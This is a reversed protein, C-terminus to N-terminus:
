TAGCTELTTESMVVVRARSEGIGRRRDLADGRQGAAPALEPDLAVVQRVLDVASVLHALELLQERVRALAPRPPSTVTPAAPLWWTSAVVYKPSPAPELHLGHEHRLRAGLVDDLHQPRVQREPQAGERHARPAAAGKRAPARRTAAPRASM